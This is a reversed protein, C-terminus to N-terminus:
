APQQPDLRVQELVGAVAPDHAREAGIGRELVPEIRGGVDDVLEVGVAVAGQVGRERGAGERALLGEGQPDRGCSRTVREETLHVRDALGTGPALVAHNDVTVPAKTSINAVNVKRGPREEVRIHDRSVFADREETLARVEDARKAAAAKAADDSM